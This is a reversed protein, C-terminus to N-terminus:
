GAFRQKLAVLQLLVGQVNAVQGCGRCIFALTFGEGQGKVPVTSPRPVASPTM